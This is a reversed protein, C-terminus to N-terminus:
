LITCKNEAAKRQFEENERQAKELKRIEDNSTKQAFQAEMEAHKRALKMTAEKLKSEVQYVFSLSIITSAMETIRRLQREYLKEFQENLQFIGQKSYGKQSSVESLFLEDSYPQGGNQETVKNVLALLHQVQEMRKTEDM